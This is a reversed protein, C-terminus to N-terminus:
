AGEELKRGTCLFYIDKILLTLSQLGLLLGGIPVIIWRIWLPVNFGTSAISGREFMFIVRDMGLKLLSFAVLLVFISVFIDIISRKVASLKDYFLDIRIHENRLLLLGGGLFAATGNLWGSLDFGFSSPQNFVYRAVVDYFVVLSIVIFIIGILIFMSNNISNIIRIIRKLFGM